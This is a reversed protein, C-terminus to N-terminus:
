KLHNKRIENAIVATSAFLGVFASATIAKKMMPIIDM